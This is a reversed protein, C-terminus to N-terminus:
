CGNERLFNKTAGFNCSNKKQLRKAVSLNAIWPLTALQGGNIPAHPLCRASIKLMQTWM